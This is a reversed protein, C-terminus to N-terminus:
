VRPRRDTALIGMLLEDHWRNDWHLADRRRGEHRFGCKEYVRAARPNFDYVGLSLRHLGVVDLAYDIVLRTVETGYGQGFLRPGALWVRYNAANNDPDFENLVAEGLFSGDGARVVAWDARDHDDRRTALWTQVTSRDFSAHTGTLRNVEPDSLGVLYAELVEAALPQLRVRPGTLTPQHRFVDSAPM